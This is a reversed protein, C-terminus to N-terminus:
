SANRAKKTDSEDYFDFDFTGFAELAEIRRLHAVYEALAANVADKKSRHGGLEVAQAVLEDDLHLNTPM